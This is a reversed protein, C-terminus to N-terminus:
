LNWNKALFMSKQASTTLELGSLWIKCNGSEIFCTNCPITEHTAHYQLWFMRKEPGGWGLFPCKKGM